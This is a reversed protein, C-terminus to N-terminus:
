TPQGGAAALCGNTHRREAPSVSALPRFRQILLDAGEAAKWAVVGRKALGIMSWKAM